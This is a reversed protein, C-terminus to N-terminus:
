WQHLNWLSSHFPTHRVPLPVSVEYEVHVPVDHSNSRGITHVNSNSVSRPIKNVLNNQYVNQQIQQPQPQFPNTNSNSFYNHHNPYMKEVSKIENDKNFFNM